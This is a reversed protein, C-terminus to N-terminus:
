KGHMIRKIVYTARGELHHFIAQPRGPRVGFCTLSWQLVCRLLLTTTACLMSSGRVCLGISSALVEWDWCLVVTV